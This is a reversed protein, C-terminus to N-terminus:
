PGSPSGCDWVSLGLMVCVMNGKAEVNNGLPLWGWIWARGEGGRGRRRKRRKVRVM